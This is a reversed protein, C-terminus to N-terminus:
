GARPVTGNLGIHLGGTGHRGDERTAAAAPEREERYAGKDIASLRERPNCRNKKRKKM